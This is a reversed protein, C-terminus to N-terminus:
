RITGDLGKAVLEATFANMQAPFAPALDATDVKRTEWVHDVGDATQLEGPLQVIAHSHDQTDLQVFQVPVREGDDARLATVIQGSEPIWPKAPTLDLQTGEAIKWEGEPATAPVLLATNQEQVLQRDREYAAVEQANAARLETRDLSSYSLYWGHASRYRPREITVADDVFTVKGTITEGDVDTVDYGTVLEGLAPQYGSTSWDNPERRAVRRFQEALGEPIELVLPRVTAPQDVGTAAKFKALTEPGDGDLLITLLDVLTHASYQGGVKDLLNVASDRIGRFRRLAKATAAAWTVIEETTARGQGGLEADLIGFQTELFEVRGASAKAASDATKLRRELEDYTLVPGIAEMAGARYSESEEFHQAVAGVRQAADAYAHSSEYYARATDADTCALAQGRQNAASGWLQAVTNRLDVIGTSIAEHHENETEAYSM